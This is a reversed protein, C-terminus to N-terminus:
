VLGVYDACQLPGMVVPMIAQDRGEAEPQRLEPEMAALRGSRLAIQGPADRACFMSGRLDATRGVVLLRRVQLADISSYEEGGTPQVFSLFMQLTTQRDALLSMVLLAFAGREGLQAVYGILAPMHILRHFIELPRQRDM